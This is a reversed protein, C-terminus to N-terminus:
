GRERSLAWHWALLARVPRARNFFGLAARCSQMYKHRGAGNRVQIYGAALPRLDRNLTTSNLLTAWRWYFCINHGLLTKSGPAFGFASWREAFCSATRCRKCHM